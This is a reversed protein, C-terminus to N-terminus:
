FFMRAEPSSQRKVGKMFLLIHPRKPITDLKFLAAKEAAPRGSINSTEARM